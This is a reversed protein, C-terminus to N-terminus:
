ANQTIPSIYLYFVGILKIVFQSNDGLREVLLGIKLESATKTDSNSGESQRTIDGCACFSVPVLSIILLIALLKSLSRKM